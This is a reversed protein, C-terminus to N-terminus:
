RCTQKRETAAASTGVICTKFACSVGAMRMALVDEERM